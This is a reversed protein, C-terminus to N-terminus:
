NSCSSETESFDLCPKLYEMAEEFGVGEQSRRSSVEDYALEEETAMVPQSGCNNGRELRIEKKPKYNDTSVPFKAAQLLSASDNIISHSLALAGQHTQHIYKPTELHSEQKCKCSTPTQTVRPYEDFLQERESLMTSHHMGDITLDSDSDDNSAYSELSNPIDPAYHPIFSNVEEGNVQKDRNSSLYFHNHITVIKNSEPNLQCTETKPSSKMASPQNLNKHPVFSSRDICLDSAEDETSNKSFNNERNAVDETCNSFKNLHSSNPEATSPRNQDDVNVEVLLTDYYHMIQLTFEFLGYTLLIYTYM